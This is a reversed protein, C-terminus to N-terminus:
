RLKFVQTSDTPWLIRFNEGSVTRYAAIFGPMEPGLLSRIKELTRAPHDTYFFLNTGHAGADLGDFMEMPELAKQLPGEMDGLNLFKELAEGRFQLVLQYNM